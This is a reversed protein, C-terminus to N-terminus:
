VAINDDKYSTLKGPNPVIAFARSLVNAMADQAKHMTTLQDHLDGAGSSGDTRDAEELMAIQAGLEELIETMQMLIQIKENDTEDEQIPQNDAIANIKQQLASFEQKNM